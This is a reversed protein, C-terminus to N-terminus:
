GKRPLDRIFDVAFCIESDEVWMLEKGSSSVAMTVGGSASEPSQEERIM